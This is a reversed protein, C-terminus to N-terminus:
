HARRLQHLIRNTDSFAVQKQALEATLGTTGANNIVAVAALPGAHQVEFADFRITCIEQLSCLYLLCACEGATRLTQSTVHCEPRSPTQPPPM